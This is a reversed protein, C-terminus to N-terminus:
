RPLVEFADGSDFLFAPFLPSSILQPDIHIVGSDWHDVSLQLTMNDLDVKLRIETGASLDGEFHYSRLGGALRLTPSLPVSYLKQWAGGLGLPVNKPLRAIFSLSPFVAVQLHADRPHPSWCHHRHHMTTGWEGVDGM